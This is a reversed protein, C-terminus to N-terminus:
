YNSRVDPWLAVVRGDSFVGLEDGRANFGYRVSAGAERLLDRAKKHDGSARLEKYESVLKDNKFLEVDGAILCRTDVLLHGVQELNQPLGDLFEGISISDDLLGESEAMEEPALLILRDRSDRLVVFDGNEVCVETGGYKSLAEQLKNSKEKASYFQENGFMFQDILFIQGSQVKLREVTPNQINQTNEKREM